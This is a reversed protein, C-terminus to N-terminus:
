TMEIYFLIRILQASQIAFITIFFHPALALSVNVRQHARVVISIVVKAISFVM